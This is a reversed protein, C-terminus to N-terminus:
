KPATNVYSLGKRTLCNACYSQKQYHALGPWAMFACIAVGQGTQECALMASQFKDLVSSSDPFAVPGKRWAGAGTTSLIDSGM